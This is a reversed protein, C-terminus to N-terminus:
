KRKLNTAKVERESLQIPEANELKADVNNMFEPTHVNGFLKQFFGPNRRAQLGNADVYFTDSKAPMDYNTIIRVSRRPIGNIGKTVVNQELTNGNFVNKIDAGNMSTWTGDNVYKPYSGRYANLKGRQRLSGGSQYKTLLQELKGGKAFMGEKQTNQIKQAKQAEQDILNSYQQYITIIGNLLNENRQIIEAAKEPKAKVIQILEEPFKAGEKKYIREFIQQYVEPVACFTSIAAQILEQEM